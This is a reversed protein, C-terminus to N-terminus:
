TRTRGREREAVHRELLRATPHQPMGGDRALSKQHAYAVPRHAAQARAIREDPRPLHRDGVTRHGQRTELLRASFRERHPLARREREYIRLGRAAHRHALSERIERRSRDPLQISDLERRVPHSGRAVPGFVRGQEIGHARHSETQAGRESDANWYA